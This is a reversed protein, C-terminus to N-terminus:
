LCNPAERCSHSVLVLLPASEPGVGLYPKRKAQAKPMDDLLIRPKVCEDIIVGHFAQWTADEAGSETRSSSLREHRTLSCHAM